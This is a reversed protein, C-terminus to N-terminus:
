EVSDRRLKERLTKRDIGLLRAAETKNGEASALVARIHAAEAEALTVARHPEARASFRFRHPLHATRIVGDDALMLADDLVRALETVNGAWADGCLAELADEALAPPEVGRAEASRELLSYAVAPLDSGLERLPPMVITTAALRDLLDTRIARSSALDAQTRTSTAAIRLDLRRERRNEPSPVARQTIVRLLAIQAADSLWEVEDVVLTGGRCRWAAEFVERVDDTPSAHVAEYTLIPQDRRPSAEHVLRVALSRGSGAEGTVLMPDVRRGARAIANRIRAVAPGTGILRSADGAAGLTCAARRRALATLAREVAAALEGETFPKALYEAAGVKVAEVAGEISAYGTIMMLALDPRNDRLHRILDLGDAGPMRLDTIVMDVACRDLKQLASSVDEATTVRHGFGELQRQLVELTAPADDVVLISARASM